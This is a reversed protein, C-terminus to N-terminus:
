TQILSQNNNGGKPNDICRWGDRVLSALIEYAVYGRGFLRETHYAYQNVFDEYIPKLEDPLGDRAKLYKESKEFDM